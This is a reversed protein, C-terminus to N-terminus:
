AAEALQALARGLLVRALHARTVASAQLDDQPKLAAALANQAAAVTAPEIARGGLAAEVGPCRVARDGVGFFVIRAQAFGRATAKAQAAVGVIAYDGHRRALELVASRADAAAVPVEVAVLIEDPRLATEFLGRFFDAAKIRREGARSRAIMVADLALACAPLEAAPDALALSGGITGRNRVAAHAILPAAQALLPAARAIEASRELEAHRTLAGIRLVPGAVSIGKLEALGSIDILLAPASLRLNLAPILSQGGALLRAETGQEALLACAAELSPPRAYAFAPAKVPPTEGRASLASGDKKNITQYNIYRTRM